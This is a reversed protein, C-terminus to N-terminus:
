DPAQTAQYRDQRGAPAMRCVQVETAPAQNLATRPWRVLPHAVPKTPDLGQHGLLHCGADHKVREPRNGKKKKKKKKLFFWWVTTVVVRKCPPASLEDLNPAPSCALLMKFQHRTRSKRMDYYLLKANPANLQM